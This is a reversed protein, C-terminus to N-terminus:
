EKHKRRLSSFFFVNFVQFTIITLHNVLSFKSMGISEAVGKDKGMEQVQITFKFNTDEDLREAGFLERKTAIVEAMRKLQLEKLHEEDKGEDNETIEIKLDESSIRLGLENLHFVNFHISDMKEMFVNREEGDNEDTTVRRDRYHRTTAGCLKASECIFHLSSRLKTIEEEDKHHLVWHIYDNLFYKKPYVKECFDTFVAKPDDVLQNGLAGIVLVGYYDLAATVRVMCQCHKGHKGDCHDDEAINEFVKLDIVTM